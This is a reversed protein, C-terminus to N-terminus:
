DVKIPAADDSGCGLRETVNKKLLQLLIWLGLGVVAM